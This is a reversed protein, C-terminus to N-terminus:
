ETKLKTELRELLPRQYNAIIEKAKEIDFWGARDIEPFKMKRGSKPPWEIEFTNSNIETGPSAEVAWAKLIKNSGKIEGLSIFRGEIKQGTEEMFERIAAKFSDEGEEVEGKAISWSRIRNKWYPGGMHVLFVKIGHEKKYPIIGASVKM